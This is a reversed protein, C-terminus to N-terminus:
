TEKEKGIVTSDGYGDTVMLLIEKLGLGSEKITNILKKDTMGCDGYAEKIVKGDIIVACPLGKDRLKIGIDKATLPQKETKLLVSMTGNTEVIAYNVDNIDFVDKQRLAELLDDMTMRLRKLEKQEIKGKRIVIIPNGEVITRLKMFKMSLASLIIELSVLLMVAIISHILPTSNDQMPVTVIESILITIVLEAPQLEGIQRKGMLKVMFIVFIYLVAARILTVGM